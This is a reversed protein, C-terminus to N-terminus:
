IFIDPVIGGAEAVEEETFADGVAHDLLFHRKGFEEHAPAAAVWRCGGDLITFADSLWQPPSVLQEHPTLLIVHDFVSEPAM